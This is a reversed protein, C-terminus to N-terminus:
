FKIFVDRLEPFQEILREKARRNHEDSGDLNGSKLILPEYGDAIMKEVVSCVLMEM